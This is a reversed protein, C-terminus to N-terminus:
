TGAARRITTERGIRADQRAWLGLAGLVALHREPLPLDPPAVPDTLASGGFEAAIGARRPIGALHLAFALDLVSQGPDSLLIAGQPREGHLDIPGPGVHLLDRDTFGTLPPQGPWLGVLRSRRSEAWLALAKLAPGLAAAETMPGVHAVLLCKAGSWDAKPLTM